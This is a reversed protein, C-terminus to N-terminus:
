FLIFEGTVTDDSQSAKMLMLYQELPELGVTKRLSNVKEADDLLKPQPNGLSDYYVQTGYIQPLGENVRTRDKLYAWDALSANGSRAENEIAGLVVKQFDLDHDSHQVILWYNSTAEESVKDYGPFGTEKLIQKARLTNSMLIKQQVELLRTKEDGTSGKVKDNIEQDAKVMSDLENELEVLRGREKNFCSLM